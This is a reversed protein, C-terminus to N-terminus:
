AHIWSVGATGALADFCGPRSLDCSGPAVDYVIRVTAVRYRVGQGAPMPSGYGITFIVAERLGREFVFTDAQSGNVLTTGVNALVFGSDGLNRMEDREIRGFAGGRVDPRDYEAVQLLVAHYATRTGSPDAPMSSDDLKVPSACCWGKPWQARAAAAEATGEMPIPPGSFYQVHDETAELGVQRERVAALTVPDGLPPAAAAIAPFRASGLTYDAHCLRDTSSQMYSCDLFFDEYAGRVWRRNGNGQDTADSWGRPSLQDEYWAVVRDVRDATTFDTEESAPHPSEELFPEDLEDTIISDVNSANPYAM